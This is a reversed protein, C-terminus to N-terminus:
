GDERYDAADVRRVTQEALAFAPVVGNLLEEAQKV